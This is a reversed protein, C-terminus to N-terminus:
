TLTLKIETFRLTSGGEVSIATFTTEPFVIKGTTGIIRIGRVDYPADQDDPATWEIIGSSLILEDGTGSVTLEGGTSSGISQWAFSQTVNTEIEITVPDIESPQNGSPFDGARIMRLLQQGAAM